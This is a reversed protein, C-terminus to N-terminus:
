GFKPLLRLLSLSFDIQMKVRRSENCVHVLMGNRATGNARWKRFYKKENVGESTVRLKDLSRPRVIETCYQFAMALPRREKM